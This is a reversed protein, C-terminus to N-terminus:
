ISAEEEIEDEEPEVVDWTIVEVDSSMTSLKSINAFAKKAQTVVSAVVIGLVAVSSLTNLLETSILMTGFGDTIMENIFPLMTFAVSLFAASIYFIGAKGLGKFLKKWKFNEKGSCINYITGCVTNVIVLIGLIIGLWGMITLTSLIAELM